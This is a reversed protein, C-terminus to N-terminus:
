PGVLVNSTARDAMAQYGAGIQELGVARDVVRGPEIRGDPRPHGEARVDGVARSIAARASRSDM